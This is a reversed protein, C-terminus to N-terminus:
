RRSEEKMGPNEHIIGVIRRDNWSTGVRPRGLKVKFRPEAPHLGHYSRLSLSAALRHRIYNTVVFHRTHRPLVAIDLLM